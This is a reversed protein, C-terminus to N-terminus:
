LGTNVTLLGLRRATNLFGTNQGCLTYKYAEYKKWILYITRRLFTSITPGESSM